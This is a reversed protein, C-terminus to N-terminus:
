EFISHYSVAFNKLFLILFVRRSVTWTQMTSRLPLTTQLMNEINSRCIVFGYMKEECVDLHLNTNFRGISLLVYYKCDYVTYHLM